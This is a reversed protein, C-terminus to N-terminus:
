SKSPTAREIPPGLDVCVCPEEGLIEADHGGPISYLDGPGFDETQGDDMLVRFAGSLVYGVHGRECSPTKEIPKVHDSWKHGPRFTALAISRGGLRTAQVNSGDLYEIRSGSQEFSTKTLRM